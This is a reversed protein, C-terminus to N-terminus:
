PSVLFPMFYERIARFVDGLEEPFDKAKSLNQNFSELEERTSAGDRSASFHLRFSERVLTLDPHGWLPPYINRGIAVERVFKLFATEIPPLESGSIQRFDKKGIRIIRLPDSPDSREVWDRLLSLEDLRSRKRKIQARLEKKEQGVAAKKTEGPRPKALLNESYHIEGKIKGIEQLIETLSVARDPENPHCIIVFQEPPYVPNLEQRDTGAEPKARVM